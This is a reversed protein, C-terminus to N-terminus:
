ELKLAELINLKALMAGIKNQNVSKSQLLKNIRETETDVYNAGVSEVKKMYKIYLEIYRGTYKM